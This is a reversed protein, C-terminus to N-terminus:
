FSQTYKFKRERQVQHAEKAAVLGEVVQTIALQITSLVLILISYLVINNNNHLYNIMNFLIMAIIEIRKIIRTLLLLLTAQVISLTSQSQLTIILALLILIELQSNNIFISMTTIDIIIQLPSTKYIYIITVRNIIKLNNTLSNRGEKGVM